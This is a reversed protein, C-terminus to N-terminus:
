YGCDDLFTIKDFNSDDQKFHTSIEQLLKSYANDYESYDWRARKDFERLIRAFAIYDKHNM